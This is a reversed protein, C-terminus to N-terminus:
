ETSDSASFRLCYSAPPMNPKPPPAARAAAKAEVGGREAAADPENPSMSESRKPRPPPPPPAPAPRSRSVSTRSENACATFPVWTDTVTGASAGQGVQSPVPAFGPVDGFVHGLQPPRPISVCPCPM